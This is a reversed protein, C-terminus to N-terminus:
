RTSSVPLAAPRGVRVTRGASQNQGAFALYAQRIRSVGRGVPSSTNRVSRNPNIIVVSGVSGTAASIAEDTAAKSLDGLAALVAQFQGDEFSAPARQDVRLCALEAQALDAAIPGQFRPEATQAAHVLDPELRPETAALDRTSSEGARGDASSCPILTQPNLEFHDIAEFSLPPAMRAIGIPNGSFATVAALGFVVSASGIVM